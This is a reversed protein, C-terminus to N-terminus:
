PTAPKEARGARARAEEIMQKIEAMKPAYYYM